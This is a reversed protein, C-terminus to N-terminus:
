AIKLIRSLFDALALGTVRKLLLSQLSNGLNATCIHANAHVAMVAKGAYEPSSICTGTRPDCVWATKMSRGALAGGHTM